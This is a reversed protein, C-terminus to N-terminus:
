RLTLKKAKCDAPSRLADTPESILRSDLTLHQVDDVGGPSDHPTLGVIIINM